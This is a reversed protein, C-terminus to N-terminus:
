SHNPCCPKARTEDGTAQPVVERKVQRSVVGVGGEGDVCVQVRMDGDEDKFLATVLGLPRGATVDDGKGGKAGDVDM